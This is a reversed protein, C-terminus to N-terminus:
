PPEVPLTATHTQIPKWPSSLCHRCPLGDPTDVHGHHWGRRARVSGGGLFVEVLGAHGREFVQLHVRLAPLSSVNPVQVKTWNSLVYLSQPTNNTLSTEFLPISLSVSYM